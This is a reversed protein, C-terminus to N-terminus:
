VATGSWKLKERLVEFLLHRAAHRPPPRQPAKTIRILDGPIIRCPIRATSRSFCTPSAPLLRSRSAALCRERAGAAHYARAPLHAHGHLRRQGAHAGPRGREAFLGDLGHAHGRHLGDANYESLMATDVTVNLKILQSFEGRSIVADNLAM